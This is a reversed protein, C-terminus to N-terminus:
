PPAQTIIPGTNVVEFASGPVGKLYNLDLDDWGAAYAGSIFWSSGNDAVMMGYTKLAQLIVKSQPPAASINYNAKLRLRLGMPPRNPDYSSSAYHTAPLIYSHQTQWVTFRLAHRIVGAAVEDYRVLGPLIPLGAADASTWGQPRLANTNLPWRAGSDAFWGPGASDKQAAYLEYIVCHGSDLVLVHRDGNAAAGGEIPADPPIPFPGADSQNGYATYTIPVLPQTGPVVVFPIGYEVTEGFDAHLHTANQNINAIFNASNSHLPYNSIDLNWANDPPFMACGALMPTGAYRQVIPLYVPFNDQPGASAAPPSARNLSLLLLGAIIAPVLRTM